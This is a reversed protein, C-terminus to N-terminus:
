AARVFTLVPLGTAPRSWGTTHRTAWALSATAPRSGGTAFQLTDNAPAYGSRVLHADLAAMLFAQVTQGRAQAAARVAAHREDDVWVALKVRRPLAAAKSGAFFSLTSRRAPEAAKELATDIASVLFAQSTQGRCAAAFKLRRRRTPDVRLWLRSGHGCRPLLLLKEEIQAEQPGEEDWFRVPRFLDSTAEGKSCFLVAAPPAAADDQGAGTTPAAGTEIGQAQLLLTTVLGQRRVLLGGTLSGAGRNGAGLM